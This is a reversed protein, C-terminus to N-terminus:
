DCGPMADPEPVLGTQEVTFESCAPVLEVFRALSAEACVRIVTSGGSRECPEIDDACAEGCYTPLAEQRCHRGVVHYRWEDQCRAIWRERDWDPAQREECLREDLTRLREEIIQDNPYREPDFGLPIEDLGAEWCRSTSEGCEGFTACGALGLLLAYRRM